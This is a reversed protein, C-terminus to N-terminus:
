RLMLFGWPSSSVDGKQTYTFYRETSAFLFLFLKSEAPHLSFVSDKKGKFFLSGCLFDLKHDAFLILTTGSFAQMHFQVCHKALHTYGQGWLLVCVCM